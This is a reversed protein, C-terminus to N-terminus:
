RTVLGGVWAVARALIGPEPRKLEAILQEPVPVDGTVFTPKYPVYGRTLDEQWDLIEEVIPDGGEGRAAKEFKEATAQREVYLDVLLKAEEVRGEASSAESRELLQQAERRHIRAIAGYDDAQSSAQFQYAPQQNPSSEEEM